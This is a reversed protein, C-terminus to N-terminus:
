AATWAGNHYHLILPTINPQYNGNHLAEKKLIAEGVAWGETASIMAISFIDYSRVTENIDSPAPINVRAWTTGDYHLMDSAGSVTAGSLWGDAPSVLAVNNFTQDNGNGSAPPSAVTTWATGNYHLLLGATDITTAPNGDVDTVPTGNMTRQTNRQTNGVAWGDSSSIMSINAVSADPLLSQVEWQGQVYHLILGSPLPPSSDPTAQGTYSLMEGVAWGESASLMSLGSLHVSNQGGGVNLSAPLPQQTWTHGDYHLLGSSDTGNFDGVAWGDSASLMQVRTLTTYTPSAVQEWAHGDYHLLLGAEGVAWGDMASVMSLGNVGGQISSPVRSWVGNTYHMLIATPANADEAPNGFGVAWGDTASVMSVDELWEQSGPAPAGTVGTQGPTYSGRSTFLLVAVLVVALVAALAPIGAQFRRPAAAPTPHDIPHNTPHDLTNMLEERSFPPRAGLRPAFSRRLAEEVVAYVALESRCYACTALHARLRTAETESLLDHAALPLLPAAAACDPSAIHHNQSM